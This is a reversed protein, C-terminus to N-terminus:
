AVRVREQPTAPRSPAAVAVPATARRLPAAGGLSEWQALVDAWIRDTVAAALQPPAGEVRAFTMPAGIAIRVKHPRFRWGRRVAETGIVAIPLVPAGTELALRGVGRKPRGPAGPRVRTGEAFILVPDGRELISRATALMDQDGTGRKVPFAGLSSLLGAVLRHHFLEQKAVYYIPRRAITGIVFPDLFSRHNSCLIVGGSSPVHERGVRSMRFYLHFAPQLCARLLWYVIPDAGSTRSRAHLGSQGPTPEITSSV